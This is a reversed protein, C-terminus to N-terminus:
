RAVLELYDCLTRFNADFTAMDVWPGDLGKYKKKGPTLWRGQADLSDIMERVRPALEAARAEKQAPSLPAVEHSALWKERGAKLIGEARELTAPIRYSGQWGYGTRREESLEELTYHIHKDRDGYIPRNTQLEYLRAWRGPALGARQFWAMAPPLSEVYRKDGTTLYLDLLCDIAGASERSTVSPPEFARAWAPHMAADYQQAWVPQPEPMQALLLFDGGRKAAQLYEPRRYHQYAAVLTRIVDAQTDDNLTYHGKYNEDPQERPYDAPYSAKVV